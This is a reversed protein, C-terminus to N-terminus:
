CDKFKGCLVEIAYNVAFGRLNFELGTEAHKKMMNCIKLAKEQFVSINSEVMKKTILKDLPKRLEHWERGAVTITLYPSPKPGWKRYLRLSGHLM